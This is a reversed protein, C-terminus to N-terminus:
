GSIVKEQFLFGCLLSANLSQNVQNLLLTNSPVVDLPMTVSLTGWESESGYIDKAKAKIIYTGKESWTHSRSIIVNSEIPGYWDETNGDGWDIKYYIPDNEQDISLFTYNYMTGANGSTPGSIIPVHPPANQRTTFTWLPGVAHAGHNDWSVIMWYYTTGYLLSSFEYSSGGSLNNVVLLPNNTTGFYIDYSVSDQPDPDGGVWSLLVDVSVNMAGDDPSPNTPISPPQNTNMWGSVDMFPYWDIPYYGQLIYPFDGIGDPGSINQDPGHYEDTGQYTDWYNGGCPYGNDWANIGTDYEHHYNSIFNNHYIHNNNSSTELDIGYWVNQTILNQVITNGSSNYFYVGDYNNFLTNNTIMNHQSDTFDIGHYTSNITNGSITNHHSRYLDLGNSSFYNYSMIMNERLSNNNSYQLYMEAGNNYSVVNHFVTNQNSYILALGVNNYAFASGSILSSNSHDFYVGYTDGSFYDHIISNNSSSSSLIGYYSQVITNETILNHDSSLLWVDNRNSIFFNGTLTNGHSFYMAIGSHNPYYESGSNRLMFGSINVNNATINVVNGTGSGDIITTLKSEGLLLITKNIIVHEYYPSSDDYVFIIDGTMAINIAGQITTYNGPGSGGVYLWSGRDMPKFSISPNGNFASVVSAGIMLVIIGCIFSKKLWSKRMVKAGKRIIVTNSIRYAIYIMTYFPM